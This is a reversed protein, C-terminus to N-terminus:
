HLATGILYFPPPPLIHETIPRGPDKNPVLSNKNSNCNKTKNKKKKIKGSPYSMKGIYMNIEKIFDNQARFFFFLTTKSSYKKM